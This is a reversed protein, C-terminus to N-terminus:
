QHLSFMLEKLFDVEEKLGIQVSSGWFEKCAWGIKCM